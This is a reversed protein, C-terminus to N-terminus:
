APLPSGCNECFRTGIPNVALCQPCGGRASPESPKSATVLPSAQTDSRVPVTQVTQAALVRANIVSIARLAEPLDVSVNEIVSRKFALSHSHMTEVVIGIRKSLFYVLSAIGALILFGFALGM